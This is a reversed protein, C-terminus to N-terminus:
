RRTNPDCLTPVRHLRDEVLSQTLDPRVTEAVEVTLAAVVQGFRAAELGVGHELYHHVFGATMADGGGTVDVLQVEPAPLSEVTAVRSGPARESYLSGASGRRVWVDQVGRDHLRSAAAIIAEDDDPVGQEVVAGLEDVNPTIALVPRAPTLTRALHAAKPVSVTDLVVPIGAAAAVDLLWGVLTEPLNGDVVLLEAHSLLDHSATLADVSLGDTAAMDCVGIFLEGDADLVAVYVGTPHRSPVVHGVGVGAARTRALLEQGVTDDGVAAVLEVQQGLRALNEAINRGVGGTSWVVTAPNSTGARPPAVCRSKLDMVAGGVVVVPPRPALVSGPGCVAGQARLGDLASEVEAASRGTALVLDAVECLPDARLCGLVRREWSTLQV